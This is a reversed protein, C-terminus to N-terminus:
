ACKEAEGRFPHLPSLGGSMIVDGVARLAAAEGPLLLPPPPSIDGLSIFEGGGEEETMDVGRVDAMELLLTNPMPWMTPAAVMHSSHIDKITITHHFLGLGREGREREMERKTTFSHECQNCCIYVLVNGHISTTPAENNGLVCM